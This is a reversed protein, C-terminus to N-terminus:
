LLPLWWVWMPFSSERGKEWGQRKRLQMAVHDEEQIM